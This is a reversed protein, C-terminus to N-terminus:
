LAELMGKIESKSKNPIHCFFNYHTPQWQKKTEAFACGYFLAEEVAKGRSKPATIIVESQNLIRIQIGNPLVQSKSNVLNAIIEKANDGKNINIELGHALIWFRAHSNVAYVRDIMQAATEISNDEFNHIREIKNIEKIKFM